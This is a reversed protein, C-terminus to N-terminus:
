PKPKAEVNFVQLLVDSLGKLVASVMYVSEGM